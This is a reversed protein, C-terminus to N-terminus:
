RSRAIGREVLKQYNMVRYIGEAIVENENKGYIRFFFFKGDDVATRVEAEILEQAFKSLSGSPPFSPTLTNETGPPALSNDSQGKKHRQDGQPRQLIIKDTARQEIRKLLSARVVREIMALEKKDRIQFIYGMGAKWQRHWPEFFTGTIPSAFKPLWYRELLRTFKTRDRGSKLYLKLIEQKDKEHWLMSVDDFGGVFDINAINMRAILRQWCTLDRGPTKLWDIRLLLREDPEMLQYNKLENWGKVDKLKSIMVRALPYDGEQWMKVVEKEQQLGMRGPDPHVFEKVASDRLQLDPLVEGFISMAEDMLKAENAIKSQKKAEDDDGIFTCSQMAITLLVIVALLLRLGLFRGKLKSDNYHCACFCFRHDEGSLLRLRGDNIGTVRFIVLRVSASSSKAQRVKRQPFSLSAM